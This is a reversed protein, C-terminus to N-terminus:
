PAAAAEAPTFAFQLCGLDDALGCLRYVDPVAGDPLRVEREATPAADECPPNSAPPTRWNADSLDAETYTQGRIVWGFLGWQELQLCVGGTRAVIATAVETDPRPGTFAMFVVVVVAAAIVTIVRLRTM